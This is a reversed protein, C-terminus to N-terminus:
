LTPPRWSLNIRCTKKKGVGEVTVLGAKVLRQLASATAARALVVDDALWEHLGVCLGNADAKFLLAGFVRVGSPGLVGGWRGKQKTDLDYQAVAKYLENDYLDCREIYGEIMRAFSIRKQPM